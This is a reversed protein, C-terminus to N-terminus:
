FIGPRSESEDMSIDHAIPVSHDLVKAYDLCLNKIVPFYYTTIQATCKEPVLKQSRYRKQEKLYLDSFISRAHGEIDDKLGLKFLWHKILPEVASYFQRHNEINGPNQLYAFVIDWSTNYAPKAGM